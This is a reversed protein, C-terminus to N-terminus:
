NGIHEEFFALMKTYLEKRNNNDVFGHAEKPKTLWMYEYEISDLADRLALAHKFHARVDKEGHVIMLPAKLKELHNIPSRERLSSVNTGLADNLYNIGSDRQAVDGEEFMMELDYVGVYGVVCKYLDPEKVGGMLAAYGGYSAGYICIRDKDAIGAGVAWLTADTLDDQMSLGWQQYGSYLFDRGYGGSGRFNVQLVAYGRNALLQVEADFGWRDRVGHPGGHPLVILPLNERKGSAPLTLYGSIQVGDRAVMSVANVTGMPINALGPYPDLIKKVSHSAPEYLFYAPAFRDGEVFAVVKSGDESSSTINVVSGKFAADLDQQWRSEVTDDDIIVTQPYDPMTRLAYLQGNRTTQYADIDVYEHSYVPTKSDSRLDWHVLTETNSNVNDVVYLEEDSIFALPVIRGTNEDSYSAVKEWGYSTKKRYLDFFNEGEDARSALAFRPDGDLDTLVQSNEGPLRAVRSSRGSLVDLKILEARSGNYVTMLVKNQEQPLLSTLFAAGTDSSITASGAGKNRGFIYGKHDGDVSLAIWEGTAFPRDRSGLKIILGAIIRDSNVWHIEGVGREGVIELRNKIKLSEAEIVALVSEGSETRVVAAYNEGDPSVKLQSFKPLSSFAEVPTYSAATALHTALIFLSALIIQILRM